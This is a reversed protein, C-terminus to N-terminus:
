VTTLPETIVSLRLNSAPGLPVVPISMAVAGILVGNPITAEDSRGPVMGVLPIVPAIIALFGIM